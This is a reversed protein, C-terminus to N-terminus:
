PVRTREGIAGRVQDVFEAHRYVLKGEALPQSLSLAATTIVKMDRPWSLFPINDYYEKGRFCDAYRFDREVSVHKSFSSATFLERIENLKELGRTGGSHKQLQYQRMALQFMESRGKPRSINLLNELQQILVTPVATKIDQHVAVSVTLPVERLNVGSYKDKLVGVFRLQASMEYVRTKDDASQPVDRPVVRDVLADLFRTDPVEYDITLLHLEGPSLANLNIQFGDDTLEVAGDPRSLGRVQLLSVEKPTGGYFRAKKPFIHASKPTLSLSYRQLSEGCLITMEQGSVDFDVKVTREVAEVRKAVARMGREALERGAGGGLVAEAAEKTQSLDV